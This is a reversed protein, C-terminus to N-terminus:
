RSEPLRPIRRASALQLSAGESRTGAAHLPITAKTTWRYVHEDRDLVILQIHSVTITVPEASVSDLAEAYPEIPGDSNSYAISVHPTWQDSDPVMEWGWVDAIAERVAQRIGRMRDAPQVHFQLAEPAPVPRTFTLQVPELSQLRSTVAKTIAAIDTDSVEDTFGIGQMTLHLWKFPILDLGSLGSLQGHYAAVLRHLAPQDQFTTHFTYM